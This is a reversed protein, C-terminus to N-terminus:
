PGREGKGGDFEASYLYAGGCLPERQGGGCDDSVEFSGRDKDGTRSM